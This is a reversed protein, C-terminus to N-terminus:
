KSPNLKIIQGCHPCIIQPDPPTTPTTTDDNDDDPKLLQWPEVDVLAALRELTAVSLGGGNLRSYITQYNKVGAKAALDAWSLGKNVRYENFKKKIVEIEM